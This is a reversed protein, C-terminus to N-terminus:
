LGRPGLFEHEPANFCDINLLAQPSIHQSRFIGEKNLIAEQPSHDIDSDLRESFPVSHDNSIAAHIHMEMIALSKVLKESM